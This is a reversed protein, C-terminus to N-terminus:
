RPLPLASGFVFNATYEEPPSDKRRRGSSTVNVVATATHLPWLIGHEKWARRLKTLERHRYHNSGQERDPTSNNDEAEDSVRPNTEQTLPSPSLLPEPSEPVVEEVQEQGEEPPPPTSPLRKPGGLGKRQGNRVVIGADSNSDPDPIPVKRPRGRGRRRPQSESSQNEQQSVLTRIRKKPPLPPGDVSRHHISATTKHDDYVDNGADKQPQRAEYESGEVELYSGPRHTRARLSSRRDSQQPRGSRRQSPPTPRPAPSPSPLPSSPSQSSPLKTRRRSVEKSIRKSGSYEVKVEPTATTNDMYGEHEPLIPIDVSLFVSSMHPNQLLLNITDKNLQRKVDDPLSRRPMRIPTISTSAAASAPASSQQTRRGRTQSEVTVTATAKSKSSIDKSSRVLAGRTVISRPSASPPSERYYSEVQEEFESDVEPSLSEQHSEVVEEEEEEEEQEDEEDEEEEEEGAESLAQSQTHYKSRKSPYTSPIIEDQDSQRDEHEDESASSLEEVREPTVSWSLADGSAVALSDDAVPEGDNNDDDDHFDNEDDSYRSSVDYAEVHGDYPQSYMSAHFNPTPSRSPLRQGCVLQSLGLSDDTSPVSIDHNDPQSLQTPQSPSLSRPPLPSSLDQTYLYGAPASERLQILAEAGELGKEDEDNDPIYQTVWEQTMPQESVFTSYARVSHHHQSQDGHSSVPLSDEFRVTRQSYSGGDSAAQSTQQSGTRQQSSTTSNTRAKTLRKNAANGRPSTPSRTITPSINNKNPRRIHDFLNSTTFRVHTKQSSSSPSGSPPADENTVSQQGM